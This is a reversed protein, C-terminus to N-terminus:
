LSRQVTFILKKGSVPHELELRYHQLAIGSKGAGLTSGYKSDGVIPIGRHSLQARIQHYRGTLLQVELLTTSRRQEIVRYHLRALKAKPSKEVVLARRDAHLLYNEVTEEEQPPYGEVLARYIKGFAKNRVAENLRTLAKSTRAFVVIGRVPTDLRHVAHLFVKGPKHYKHKLWEKAKDELNPKNTGSPQTMLGGPKEIVLLHNDLYLVEWDM